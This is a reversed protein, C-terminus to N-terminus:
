ATVVPLAIEISTGQARALNPRAVISGKWSEIFARVMFLGLGTGNAKSSNLLEFMESYRSGEVGKGTDDFAIRLTDGALSIHLVLERLATQAGQRLDEEALPPDFAELANTAINFLVREFMVPNARVLLGQTAPDIICTAEIQRRRAESKFIPFIRRAIEVCDVDELDITQERMLQRFSEVLTSVQDILRLVVKSHEELDLTSIETRLTLVDIASRAAQLPQAIEHIVGGGLLSLTNLTSFRSNLLMMHDREAILRATERAHEEALRERVRLRATELRLELERAEAQQISLGIYFFCCMVVFVCQLSMAIVSHTSLDTYLLTSANKISAALRVLSALIAATFALEAFLISSLNRAIRVRRLAVLVWIELVAAAVMASHNFFEDSPTEFYIAALVLLHLLWASLLHRGAATKGAMLAISYLALYLSSFTLCTALFNASQRWSTGPAFYVTGSMLQLAIAAFWTRAVSDASKLVFFWSASAVVGGVILLSLVVYQYHLAYSAYM